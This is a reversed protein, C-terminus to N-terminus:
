IRVREWNEGLAELKTLIKPAVMKAEVMLMLVLAVEEIGLAYHV